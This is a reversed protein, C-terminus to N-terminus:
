QRHEADLAAAWRARILAGISPGCAGTLGSLAFWTWQPAGMVVAVTFGVGFVLFGAMAWPLVVGQGRRDMVRAWQPSFVAAALALTGAVAGALGYSGTEGAVLLVSGLGVMPMPLRALWGVFSFLRSGPVAFLAAYPRFVTRPSVPTRASGPWLRTRPIGRRDRPHRTSRLLGRGRCAEPKGRRVPRSIQVTM